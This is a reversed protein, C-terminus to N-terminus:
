DVQDVQIATIKVAQAYVVDKEVAYCEASVTGTDEYVTVVNHMSFSANEGNGLTTTFFADTFRMEGFIFCEATQPQSLSPSYHFFQATLNVVYHGSPVTLKAIETNKGFGDLPLGFDTYSFTSHFARSVGNEGKNGKEGQPGSEGQPGAPGELGQPGQPGQPGQEGQLGREGQPGQPGQEGQIGPLGQEGQLGPEGQPGQEGEPGQPGTAGTEGPAGQDGKRALLNWESNQDPAKDANEEVAVYSSGEYSVADDVAYTKDANWEGQWVLGPEGKDGKAGDEGPTGPDGKSGQQNLCDADRESRM